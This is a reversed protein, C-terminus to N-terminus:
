RGRARKTASSSAWMSSRSSLKEVFCRVDVESLLWAFCRGKAGRADAALVTSANMAAYFAEVSAIDSAARRAALALM